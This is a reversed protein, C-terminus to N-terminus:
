RTATRRTAAMSPPATQALAWPDRPAFSIAPSPATPKAFIALPTALLNLSASHRALLPCEAHRPRQFLPTRAGAWRLLSECVREMKGRATIRHKGGDRKEPGLM